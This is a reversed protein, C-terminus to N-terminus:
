IHILSLDRVILDIDKSVEEPISLEQALLIKLNKRIVYEKLRAIIDEKNLIM